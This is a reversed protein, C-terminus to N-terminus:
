ECLSDAKYESLLARWRNNVKSADLRKSAPVFIQQFIMQADKPWLPDIDPTLTHNLLGNVVAQTPIIRYPKDGDSFVEIFTCGLAWIDSEFTRIRSQMLEPSAWRPALTLTFNNSPHLESLGFDTIAVHMSKLDILLNRLGLDGHIINLSHVHCIGSAAQACISYKEQFSYQRSGNEPNMTDLISGDPYLNMVIFKHLGTFYLGYFHCINPHLCVELFNEAEAIIHSDDRLEKLAVKAGHYEGTIIKGFKGGGIVNEHLSISSIYHKEQM